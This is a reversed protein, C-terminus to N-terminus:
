RAASRRTPSNSAARWLPETGNRADENVLITVRKAPGKSLM